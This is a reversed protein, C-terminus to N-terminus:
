LRNAQKFETARRRSMAVTLGGDLLLALSGAPSPAVGTVFGM